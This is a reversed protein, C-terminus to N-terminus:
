RYQLWYVWDVDFAVADAGGSDQWHALSLEGTETNGIVINRLTGAHIGDVEMTAMDPGSNANSGFFKVIATHWTAVVATTGSTLSQNGAKQGAAVSVDGNASDAQLSLVGADSDLWLGVVPSTATVSDQFGFRFNGSALEVPYRFRIGFEGGLTDLALGDTFLRIVSGDGDATAATTSRLVGNRVAAAGTQFAYTSANAITAIEWRLEGTLADAVSDNSYFDEDIQFVDAPTIISKSM